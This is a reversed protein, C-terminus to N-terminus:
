LQKFFQLNWKSFTTTVLPTALIQHSPPVVISAGLPTPYPSPHGSGLRSLPRPSRRSSGLPTRPPAGAAIANEAYKLCCYSLIAQFIAFEVKFFHHHCTVMTVYLTAAITHPEGTQESQQNTQTCQVSREFQDTSSRRTQGRRADGPRECRESPVNV